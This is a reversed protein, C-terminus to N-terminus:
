LILTHAEGALYTWDPPPQGRCYAEQVTYAPLPLVLCHASPTDPLAQTLYHLLDDHQVPSLPGVFVSRQVRELGAKLLRNALALRLADAEIDYSVLYLM